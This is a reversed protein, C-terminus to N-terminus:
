VEVRNCSGVIEMAAEVGDFMEEEKDVCDDFLNFKGGNVFYVSGMCNNKVLLM